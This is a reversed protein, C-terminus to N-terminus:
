KARGSSPVASPTVGKGRTISNIIDLGKLMEVARFLQYDDVLEEGPKKVAPAINAPVKMLKPPDAKKVPAKEEAGKFHNQLDKERFEVPADEASEKGVSKAKKSLDQQAVM